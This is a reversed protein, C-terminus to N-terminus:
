AAAKAAKLSRSSKMKLFPQEVVYWSVTALLCTIPLAILTLMYPGITQHSLHIVTQQVPWAYLYVGYSLDVKHGWNQLKLEQAFSVWILAYVGCIPLVTQMGNVAMSLVVILVSIAFLPKSYPIRDGLLYFVAGAVFFTAFRVRLTVLDPAHQLMPISVLHPYSILTQLVVLAAFIGVLIGPRKLLGLYALVMVGLYCQFELTITWLSGNLDDPAPNHVYTPLMPMKHLRLLDLLFRVPHLAHLYAGRDAAAALGFVGVTLLSAVIYGPYIRLIRKKLYDWPGKSYIWSRTILFGSIAFFFDVAIEGFYTRGHSFVTLPEAKSGTLHFSHSFLVLAALFFRLFNLNNSRGGSVTAVTPSAM